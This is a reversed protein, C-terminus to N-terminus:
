SLLECSRLLSGTGHRKNIYSNLSHPECEKFASKLVTTSRNAKLSEGHNM